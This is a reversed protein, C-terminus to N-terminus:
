KRSPAAGGRLGAAAATTANGAVRAAAAGAGAREREGETNPAPSPADTYIFTCAPGGVCVGARNNVWGSIWQQSAVRLTYPGPWAASRPRSTITLNVLGNAPAVVARGEISVPGGLGRIRMGGTLSTPWTIFFGADFGRVDADTVGSLMITLPTGGASPGSPPDIGNFSLSPPFPVPVPSQSPALSGQTPARAPTRAGATTELVVAAPPTAGMTYAVVSGDTWSAVFAPAFNFAPSPSPLPNPSPVADACLAYRAGPCAAAIPFDLVWSCGGDPTFAAFPQKVRTYYEQQPATDDICVFTVNASSPAGGCLAGDTFMLGTIANCASPAPAPGRIVGAYTGLSNLFAFNNARTLLDVRLWPCFRHAYVPDAYLGVQTCGSALVGLGANSLAAPVDAPRPAAPNPSPVATSSGLVQGAPAGAGFGSGVIFLRTAPSSCIFTPDGPPFPCPSEPTWVAFSAGMATVLPDDQAAALAVGAAAFVAALLAAPRRRSANDASFRLM